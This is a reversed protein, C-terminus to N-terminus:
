NTKELKTIAKRGSLMDIVEVVYIGKTLGNLNHLSVQPLEKSIKQIM